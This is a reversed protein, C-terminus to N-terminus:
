LFSRCSEIEHAVGAAMQGLAALKSAQALENRTQRLKNETLVHQEVEALLKENSIKLDARAAMVIMPSTPWLMM